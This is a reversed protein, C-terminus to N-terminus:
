DKALRFHDWSKPIVPRREGDLGVLTMERAAGTIKGVETLPVSGGRSVTSHLLAV